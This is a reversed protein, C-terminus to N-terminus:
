DDDEDDDDWWSNTLNDILVSFSDGDERFLTYDCVVEDPSNGFVFRVNIRDYGETGETGKAFRVWLDDYNMVEDLVVKEPKGILSVREDFDEDYYSIDDAGANKLARLVQRVGGRDNTPAAM